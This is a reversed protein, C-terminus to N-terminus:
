YYDIVFYLHKSDQFTKHLKLICPHKLTALFYKEIHVEHQKEEKDLTSKNIIKISYIKGNLKHKALVVKAYSGSGLKTSIEFDNITTKQQTSATSIKGVNETTIKVKLPSKQNQTRELSLSSSLNRTSHSTILQSTQNLTRKLDYDDKFHVRKNKFKDKDGKKRM